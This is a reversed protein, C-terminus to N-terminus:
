ELQMKSGVFTRQNVCFAKDATAFASGFLVFAASLELRTWFRQKLQVHSFDSQPQPKNITM